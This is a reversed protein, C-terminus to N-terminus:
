MCWKSDRRLVAMKPEQQEQKSTFAESLQVTRVFKVFRNFPALRAREETTLSEPDGNTSSLGYLSTPQQSPLRHDSDIEVVNGGPSSSMKASPPYTQRHVVRPCRPSRAVLAKKLKLRRVHLISSNYGVMISVAFARGIAQSYVRTSWGSMYRLM